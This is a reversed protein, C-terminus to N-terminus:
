IDSWVVARVLRDNAREARASEKSRVLSASREAGEALFDIDTGIGVLGFGRESLRLASEGDSAHMACAIDAKVCSERIREVDAVELEKKTAGFSLRLDDSGIYIGDLDPTACIDELNEFGDKTEIMVFCLVRENAQKPDVGINRANLVPGFSRIGEPPYRCAAVAREAEIRNSVLPVIIGGAGMDLARMIMWPENSMVRVMPVAGGASISEIMAASVGFDIFGHQWDVGVWDFGRGALVQASFANPILCWGGFATSREPWLKGLRTQM